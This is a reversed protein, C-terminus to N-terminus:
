RPIDRDTSAHWTGVEDEGEGRRGLGEWGEEGLWSRGGATRAQRPLEDTDAGECPRYVGRQGGTRAQWEGERRIGAQRRSDARSSRGDWM